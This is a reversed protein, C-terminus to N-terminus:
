VFRHANNYNQDLLAKAEKLLHFEESWQTDGTGITMGTRDAKDHRQWLNAVQLLCAEQLIPHRTAVDDADEAIGGTYTIEVLTGSPFDWVNVGTGNPAIEYQAAPVDLLMSARGSSSARVSAISEIPNRFVPFLSGRIVRRETAAEILFGRSCYQELRQSVSSIMRALTADVDARATAGINAYAKVAALTTLPLVAV